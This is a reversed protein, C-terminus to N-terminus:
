LDVDITEPPILAAHLLRTSARQTCKELRHRLEECNTSTIPQGKKAANSVSRFCNIWGQTEDPCVAHCVCVMNRTNAARTRDPRKQVFQQAEQACTVLAVFADVNAQEGTALAQHHREAFMGRVLQSQLHLLARPNPTPPPKFSTSPSSSSAAM